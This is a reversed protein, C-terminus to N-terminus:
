WRNIHKETCTIILWHSLISLLMLPVGFFIHVIYLKVSVNQIDYPSFIFYKWRFFCIQISFVFSITLKYMFAIATLQNKVDDLKKARGGFSTSFTIWTLNVCICAILKKSIHYTMCSLWEIPTYQMKLILGLLSSYECVFNLHILSLNRCVWLLHFFKTKTKEEM